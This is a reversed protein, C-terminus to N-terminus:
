KTFKPPSHFNLISVKLSKHSAIIIANNAIYKIITACNLLKLIHPFIIIVNKSPNKQTIGRNVPNNKNSLWYKLAVLIIHTIAKAPITTPFAIIYISYRLISKSLQCPKLYLMNSAPELLNFGIIIVEKVVISPAVVINPSGTHLPNARDIIHHNIADALRVNNIM